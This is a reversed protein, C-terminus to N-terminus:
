SGDGRLPPLQKPYSEQIANPLTVSTPWIVPEIAIRAVATGAQQPSINNGDMYVNGGTHNSVAALSM